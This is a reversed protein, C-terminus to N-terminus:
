KNKDSKYIINSELIHIQPLFHSIVIKSHKYEWKNKEM